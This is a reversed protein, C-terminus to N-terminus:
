TKRTTPVTMSGELYNIEAVIGHRTLIAQIEEWNDKLYSERYQPFLTAFSSEELLGFKNDTERFPEIKWHDIDESDWPKDKRHNKREAACSM